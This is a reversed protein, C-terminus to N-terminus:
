SLPRAFRRRREMQLRRFWPAQPGIATEYDPFDLLQAHHGNSELHARLREAQTQKGSQDLGEFAILLGPM